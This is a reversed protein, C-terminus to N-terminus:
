DRGTGAFQAASAGMQEFEAASFTLAFEDDVDLPDLFARVEALFRDAFRGVTERRHVSECFSFEFELIGGIVRGGIELRYRPPSGPSQTQGVPDGSPVLISGAGAAQDLQGLYNFSVTSGTTAPLVGPRLWRLIGYGLGRNPVRRLQAAVEQLAAPASAFSLSLRLPYLSTFWGVTRAVPLGVVDERGHGELDIRAESRGSWQTLAVALAAILMEPMQAGHQAPAERLLRSTEDPSLSRHLSAIRVQGSGDAAPSAVSGEVQRRWFALEADLRGSAALQHLANGWALFSATTAPLPADQYAAVLDELLIRWSVGDVVLHHAVLLLRTRGGNPLLVARLLPGRALDFGSQCATPDWEDGGDAIQFDVLRGDDSFSQRWGAPAKEYRLRFADHHAAVREIANELRAADIGAPAKLFVAQNFHAPDSLDLDFFWHQIPTLPAEGAPREGAVAALPPPTRELATALGAITQHEFLLRTTVALGVRTARAVVQISLISDGGLEFFNDEVGVRDVGLVECWIEALTAETSTRVPVYQIDSVGRTLRPLARRDVKGNGTLPLRDLSVFAAPVMYDPLREAVFDRLRPALDRGLKQQLPNNGYRHWAGPAAASAPFRPEIATAASMWVADFALPDTASWRLEVRIGANEALLCLAEPDIGENAGNRLRERLERLTEGAPRAALFQLARSAEELRSNLIGRLGWPKARSAGLEHRIRDMDWAHPTWEVWEVDAQPAPAPQMRLTADYRFRNLENAASGRKPRITVSAIRRDAQQLAQFFEPAVLLEQEQAIRHAIREALQAATLTAPANALEVSVHYAKLLDFNRVDGIFIAGGPRLREMAGALVRRLYDIGPFYQVVSNIIITDFDGAEISAFQDAEGRRLEVHAYEARGQLVGAIQELAPRSFDIGLYRECAPALRYLLLGTGCGIELARRPALEGIRSVTADVWERMEAAPLPEGTYTSNWGVINFMPDAAVTGAYTSAYLTEWAAVQEAQLAALRFGAREADTVVYAVLRKEGPEDDRAIVVSERVEPHAALISEIERPEVRFGRVKVQDDLRGLFEIAGDDLWRARDGTRYLREGPAGFPNPVFREATWAPHALYGDALGDGGLLLEGPMGIPSLRFATDVIYARTNSIPRGIPVSAGLTVDATIRHCCAFTTSETPGYGNIVVCTPLEALVRRVHPVSLTDGGALLQRIPALAALHEDVILHFLGATLWLITVGHRRIATEIEGLSPTRSGLIAVRCGNLLAGWVEFTSADFSATSLHLFVDHPEIVVYNTQRVLRVVGRHPVSVGKPTGTSGSTFMVYALHQPSVAVSLNGAEEGVCDDVMLLPRAVDALRHCHKEHTVMLVAAADELMVAIRAAPYAPDLPVYAAGAKLVALMAVIMEPSRELCIGVRAGPVLLGPSVAQMRRALRNAWANLDAYSLSCADAVVAVAEPQERAIAEFLRHIPQRPYETATSNYEVEVRREEDAPLLPLDGLRQQRDAAASELIRRYHEAMRRITQEDFLDTRYEFAGHFAGDQEEMSLYLDFKATGTDLPIRSAQLGPLRLEDQPANQLAFLVQFLPNRDSERDARLEDILREFPLDQHALADLVMARARGLAEAFSPNGRLDGRLVLTNVFLGILPELEPRTRNAVATGVIIDEQGSYRALLAQFATLLVMFPTADANRAMTRVSASLDDSLAFRFTRGHRNAVAPRARDTPLALEAPLDALQRRWYDVEGALAEGELRHRQWCAFDVYSIGSPPPPVPEGRRLAAYISNLERIMVGMSWGDSVIHHMTLLLVHSQPALAYLVARILPGTELNFARRVEVGIRSALAEQTEVDDSRLDLSLHPLVVQRARGQDKRFVTRLAEHRAAILDLCRALAARDLDGTLRVAAPLNYTPDPGFQQELFWLRLQASSLPLVSPREAAALAPITASQGLTEVSVIRKEVHKVLAVISTGSIFTQLPLDVAIQSAFRNRLETSMLSDLGLDLLSVQGALPKAAPVGLVDRVHHEVYRSLLDLRTPADAARLRPLFTDDFSASQPLPILEVPTDVHEFANLWVARRQPSFQKLLVPWAIPVVGLQAAPSALCRDFAALGAQTPIVGIGKERSRDTTGLRAASGLESWPGWNISLGPLGQSQRWHALADLFSNAASYNTQGASGFLSAASSFLVFFDLPDGDTLRHLNWAGAIKPRMVRRYRPWDQLELVGDDLMAAAHVVGRIPPMQRRIADLADRLSAEDTVDAIFGAVRCGSARSEDLTRRAEVDPPTRSILALHKAGRRAMGRAVAPGLGRSGGILVYTADARLSPAPQKPLVARVLRPTWRQGDRLAVEGGTADHTLEDALACLAAPSTPLPLDVCTMEWASYELRASKLMGWLPSQPLGAAQPAPVPAAGRTILWLPPRQPGALVRQFLDLCIRVNRECAEELESGSAAPHLSADCAAFCVIGDFSGFDDYGDSAEAVMVSDRRDRLLQAVREAIGTRDALFLWRKAATTPRASVPEVQWVQEYFWNEIPDATDPWFREHQWPYRPLRVRRGPNVTEPSVSGTVFSRAQQYAFDRWEEVSGDAPPPARWPEPEVDPEVVGQFVCPDPRRARAADLRARLQTWDTAVIALRHSFQERTAAASFCVDALGREGPSEAMAAYSAALQEVAPATKASLLLVHVPASPTPLAAAENAIELIVHANTGSVGFSSVAAFRDEAALRLTATPVTAPFEQWPIHPNPTQFHIQPPVTRHGLVLAAKILGAIGSAAELHGINAKVAGLILRRERQSGYVSLAARYEIPDGLATGTGHTELYSVQRAEVRAAALARRILREQAPGNPVTLGSSAGDHNVASGRILAYPLDGDALADALRKLVVIACGEGRGYGDAAADFTKCRGDPALMRARCTAISSEPCLILNVGGALAVRSEGSRLSQCALHVAVLSSSCATDIAMSPGELGLAYSIRGAAANLTNGTVFYPDIRAPDGSSVRRAYDTGTIGVFVGVPAGVLTGPPIGADELAEWSVELLCRQQPDLSLAERRSIAFFDADFSEVGDVFGGERTYIVGPKAPDPDYLADADWRSAPVRGIADRCAELLEWYSQPDRAGGPFRCGIGVIAIPEHQAREAEKLRASAEELAALVRRSRSLDAAAASQQQEANM